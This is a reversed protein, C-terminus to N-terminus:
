VCLPVCANIGASGIPGCCGATNACFEGADCQRDTDCEKSAPCVFDLFLACRTPGATSIVCFCEDRLKPGCAAFSGGPGACFGGQPCRCRRKRCIGSCCQNGRRCRTGAHRLTCSQHTAAAEKAALRGTVGGLLGGVLGRLALRRSGTAALNRTLTDFRESEM